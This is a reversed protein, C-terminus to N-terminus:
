VLRARLRPMSTLTKYWLGVEKSLSEGYAKQFTDKERVQRGDMSM